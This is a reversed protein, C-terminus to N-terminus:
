LKYFKSNLYASSHLYKIAVREYFRTYMSRVVSADRSVLEKKIEFANSNRLRLFAKKDILNSFLGALLLNNKSNSQNGLDELINILSDSEKFILGMKKSVNEPYEDLPRGELLHKVATKGAVDGCIIAPLFGEILPKLNQAASDGALLVNGYNWKSSTNEFPVTGSKEMVTKANKLQRAVDKIKLFRKFCADLDIGEVISGVGINASTESVPFIHAYGGPAFDGFYLKDTRPSDLRVDEFEYVVGWGIRADSKRKGLLDLVRSNIGDAGILVKFGVELRKSKQKIIARKGLGKEFVIDLLETELFLKVGADEARRALWKDFSARDIAFSTWPGGSRRFSVDEAHFELAEIKWKLLERPTRFPLLPILYSGIAGSSKIPVGVEKKKEVLMVDLGASACAHAASAGAPGAGVVLVDCKMLDIRFM